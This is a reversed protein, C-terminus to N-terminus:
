RILTVTGKRVITNGRFGVASAVWVYTAIPQPKGKYMGDWGKAPNSTTFVQQGLRNYISFYNFKVIGRPIAHLIENNLDNNPSFAKPVLIDAVGFVTVRVTDYTSCGVATYANLTFTTTETLTATPNALAADNLNLSPTWAYLVGGSGHLQFPVGSVVVTDNGANANTEFVNFSQNLTDSFCGQQSIAYLQASYRGGTTFVISTDKSFAQITNDIKWHWSTIVSTSLNTGTFQVVSDACADTVTIGIAPKPEIVLTKSTIDSNCGEVNYALLGITANGAPLQVSPNIISQTSGDPFLWKVSAAPNGATTSTSNFVILKNNCLPASYNFDAIPKPQLVFMKVLPDSVCGDSSTVVLSVPTNGSLSYSTTPNAFTQTTGNGLNWSWQNITAGGTITSTDTYTIPINLCVPENRFG